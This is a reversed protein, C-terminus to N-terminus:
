KEILKIKQLCNKLAFNITKRRIESRDGFFGYKICEIQGGKIGWAIYVTGVPKQASGGDPGAIGTVSVALEADSNVLAGEVMQKAVEESVAGYQDLTSQKVQLMQIKSLNSYTVFGRDFWGSSGSIETIAQAVGGGTCSEATAIKLGKEKLALGLQKALKTIQKDM